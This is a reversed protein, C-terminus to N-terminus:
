ACSVRLHKRCGKPVQCLTGSAEKRICGRHSRQSPNTPPPPSGLREKMIEIIDKCFENGQRLYKRLEEFGDDLNRHGDLDAILVEHQNRVCESVNMGPTWFAGFFQTPDFDPLPQALNATPLAYPSEASHYSAAPDDGPPGYYSM